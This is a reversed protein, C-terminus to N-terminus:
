RVQNNEDTCEISSLAEICYIMLQSYRQHYILYIYRLMIQDLFMSIINNDLYNKLYIHTYRRSIFKPM